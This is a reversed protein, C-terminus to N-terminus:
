HTFYIRTLSTYVHDSLINLIFYFIMLLLFHCSIYNCGYRKHFLLKTLFTNNLLQNLQKQFKRNQHMVHWSLQYLGWYSGPLLASFKILNYKRCNHSCSCYCLHHIYVASLIHHIFIPGQCISRQLLLMLWWTSYLRLLALIELENTCKFLSLVMVVQTLAWLIGRNKM